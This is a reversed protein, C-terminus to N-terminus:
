KTIEFEIIWDISYVFGTDELEIAIKGENNYNFHIEKVNEFHEDKINFPTKSNFKIDIKM